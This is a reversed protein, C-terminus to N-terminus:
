PRRRRAMTRRQKAVDPIQMGEIGIRGALATALIAIDRGATTLRFDAMSGTTSPTGEAIYLRNMSEAIPDSKATQSSIAPM